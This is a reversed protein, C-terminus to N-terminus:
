PCFHDKMMESDGNGLVTGPVHRSSLSQKKFCRLQTIHCRKHASFLAWSLSLDGPALLRM